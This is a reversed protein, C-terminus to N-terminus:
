SQSLFQLLKKRSGIDALCSFVCFFEESDHIYNAHQLFTGFNLIHLESQGNPSKLDIVIDAPMDQVSFFLM